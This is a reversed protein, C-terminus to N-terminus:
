KFGAGLMCNCFAVAEVDDDPLVGNVLLEPANKEFPVVVAIPVPAACGESAFKMADDPKAIGVLPAPPAYM